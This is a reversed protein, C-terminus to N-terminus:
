KTAGAKSKFFVIGLLLVGLSVLILSNKSEGTQPLVSFYDKSKNEITESSNESETVFSIKGDTKAQGGGNETIQSTSSTSDTSQEKASTKVTLQFNFFVTLCSILIFFHKKRM